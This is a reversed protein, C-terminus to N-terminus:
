TELPADLNNTRSMFPSFEKASLGATRALNCRGTDQMYRPALSAYVCALFGSFGTALYFLQAAALSLTLYAWRRKPTGLGAGVAAAFCQGAHRVGVQGCRFAALPASM